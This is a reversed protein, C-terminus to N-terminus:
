RIGQCAIVHASSMTGQSCRVRVVIYMRGVVARGAAHLADTVDTVYTVDTVDIVQRTYLTLNFDRRVSLLNVLDRLRMDSKPPRNM